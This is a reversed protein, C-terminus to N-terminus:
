GAEEVAEPYTVTPIKGAKKYIILWVSKEAAHFKELWERWKQRSEAYFTKVGDKIEM